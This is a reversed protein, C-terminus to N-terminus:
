SPRVTIAACDMSAAAQASAAWDSILKALLALDHTGSQLQRTFDTRWQADPMQQRKFMAEGEAGLSALGTAGLTAALGKFSHLAREAEVFSAAALYGDVQAPLGQASVCFSSVMRQYLATKGMFRDITAQAELGMSDAKSLLDAPLTMSMFQQGSVGKAAKAAATRGSVRLLVQVLDALEFPKSVFDTMGAAMCDERDSAMANATMAVVPLATLGLGQAGRARILRTATFGDMVPMQVDMLVVDFATPDARLLDLALQGDGALRVTAGAQELLTQAVEQNLENDEVLLLRLGALVLRKAAAPRAHRRVNSQGTRARKLMDHLMAATIPKVLIGNLSAQEEKSREALRERGHATVMVTIPSNPGMLERMRAIAAWGDMGPMEWDMFVADFPPREALQRAQMLQLAEQGDAAAEALWGLSQAMHQVLERAIASDDVVLVSLHEALNEALEDAADAEADVALAAGVPLRLSFHFSSGKGLESDLALEGGMMAVLRQSINLGLGTGGFRRTTSVEAQSFGEFIKQQHEPAIGIGSDRVVFRLTVDPGIDSVLEIRIVVEGQATFKIANGSLNILVQQLRMADGVLVPPVRADIDFLVEVPKKGINTSVITSLDRMLQDLAFPQPDLTMKGADMKSFDLIDNILGLLSKAAGAAKLTYDRQRQNLDTGQLLKLMGLVANMPTRIEHSMNALFQGKAATAAEVQAYAQANDLAIAGYSCLARMIFIEREGYAMARPSQVSMVGLLREGILMPFYMLSNTALTGPIVDSGQQQAQLNILLERRERACLSFSSTEDSLDMSMGPVAQEGEMAFVMKLASANQDYLCVGFFSADMMSHVHRHLAAFVAQASLSATIERGVQGLTELTDSTAQLLEARRSETQALLRLQEAAAHARATEQRVQMAIARNGADKSRASDRAAAAARASKYAQQYDAADAYAQSLEDFLESPSLFGSISAACQQAQQLYHLAATPAQMGTPAPLSHQRHLDALVRLVKVQEEVNGQEVVLRLAAEIKALAEVPRGLKALASAQGRWSRLVAIPEGLKAAAQEAQIFRQLAEEPQDLDLLIESLGQMVMVYTNSAGLGKFTELAELQCLKADELRGLLRLVSGTQTLALALMAPWGCGRALLLAREDWELAADLDGLGAFSDAGNSASLIAFRLQGTEEAANFAQLFYSISAGLEGTYGAVVARVSALVPQVVPGPDQAADFQQALSLGTAKADRFAQFLLGRASAFRLRVADGSRRYDEVCQLLTTDRRAPDGADSCISVLLSKADGSGITDGSSEFVALAAQVKPEAAASQGRLSDIEARLLTLRAQARQHDILPLDSQALLHEAETAWVLAQESASQRQYWALRLLAALRDLGLLTPLTQTLSALMDKAAFLELPPNFKKM